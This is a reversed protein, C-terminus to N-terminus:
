HAPMTHIGTELPVIDSGTLAPIGAGAIALVMVAILIKYIKKM